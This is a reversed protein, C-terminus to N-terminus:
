GRSNRPFAGARRLAAPSADPPQPADRDPAPRALIGPRAPIEPALAPAVKESVAPKIKDTLLRPYCGFILLSALLLLFPAKRWLHPADAV